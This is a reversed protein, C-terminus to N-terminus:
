GASHNNSYETALHKALSEITPYDYILTPDLECALWEELDGSLGMVAASDLGFREFPITVDIEKPELNLLDALYTTLWTQIGAATPQPKPDTSSTTAPVPDSGTPVPTVESNQSDMSM